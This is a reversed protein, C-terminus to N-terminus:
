LGFSIHSNMYMSDEIDTIDSDSELLRLPQRKLRTLRKGTISSDSLEPCSTIQAKRMLKHATMYDVLSFFHKTPM